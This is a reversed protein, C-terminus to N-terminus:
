RRITAESPVLTLKSGGFLPKLMKQESTSLVRPSPKREKRFDSLASGIISVQSLRQLVRVLTLM